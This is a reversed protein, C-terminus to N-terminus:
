EQPRNTKKVTGSRKKDKSIREFGGHLKELVSYFLSLEEDTIGKGVESQVEIVMDTIRDALQAGLETLVYRRGSGNMAVYGDKKLAEIERSVLSRDIMSAAAIKAATLGEPHGKLQYLWFVHVSKIGLEPVKRGKIKHICKHIGEILLTFKEFRVTEM